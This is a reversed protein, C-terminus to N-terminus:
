GKRKNAPRPNDFAKSDPFCQKGLRLYEEAEKIAAFTAARSLKLAKGVSAIASETKIEEREYEALLHLATLTLNRRDEHETPSVFKGRRKQKLVLEHHPDKGRLANVFGHLVFAAHPEELDNAIDSLMDALTDANFEMPEYDIDLHCRQVRELAM